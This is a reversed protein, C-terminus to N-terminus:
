VLWGGEANQDSGKIFLKENTERRVNNHYCMYFYKDIFIVCTKINTRSLYEVSATMCLPM